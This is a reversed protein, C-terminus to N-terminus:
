SRARRTSASTPSLRAGSGPTRPGSCIFKSQNYYEKLFKRHEALLSDIVDISKVYKSTIIVM